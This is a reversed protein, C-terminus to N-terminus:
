GDYSTKMRSISFLRKSNTLFCKGNQLDKNLFGEVLFFESIHVLLDEIFMHVILELVNDLMELAGAFQPVKRRIGDDARRDRRDDSKDNGPKQQHSLFHIFLKFFLPRNLKNQIPDCLFSSCQSM